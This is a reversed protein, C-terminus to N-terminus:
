RKANGVVDFKISIQVKAMTSQLIGTGQLLLDIRKEEPGKIQWIVRGKFWKTLEPCWGWCDWAPGLHSVKRCCWFGLSCALIICIGWSTVTAGDLAEIIHLKAHFWYFLCYGEWEWRKVKVDHGERTWTFCTYQALFVNRQLSVFMRLGQAKACLYRIKDNNKPFVDIHMGERLLKM